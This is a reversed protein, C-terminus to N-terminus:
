WAAARGVQSSLCVPRQTEDAHSGSRKSRNGINSSVSVCRCSRQVLQQNEGAKEITKNAVGSIISSNRSPRGFYRPSSASACPSRHVSISLYVRVDFTPQTKSFESPHCISEKFSIAFVPRANVTGAPPPPDPERAAVRLWHNLEGTQPANKTGYRTPCVM